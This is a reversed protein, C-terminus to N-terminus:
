RTSRITMGTGVFIRRGYLDPHKYFLRTILLQLVSKQTRITHKYTIICIFYLLIPRVSPSPLIALYVTNNYFNCVCADGPFKMGDPNRIFSSTTLPCKTSKPGEAPMGAISKRYGRGTVYRRFTIKIDERSCVTLYAVPSFREGTYATKRKKKKKTEM